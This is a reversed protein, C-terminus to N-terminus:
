AACSQELPRHTGASGDDELAFRQVLLAQVEALRHPNATVDCQIFCDRFGHREVPEVDAEHLREELWVFPRGAQAEAFDIAEWKFRTAPTITFSRENRVHRREARPICFFSELWGLGEQSMTGDPCWM